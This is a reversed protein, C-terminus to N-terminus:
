TTTTSSVDSMHSPREGQPKKKWFKVRGDASATVVFNTHPTVLVHTVHDAHMFSLEYLPQSPLASLHLSEFELVRGKKNPEESAATSSTTTNSQVPAAPGRPGASRGERERKM